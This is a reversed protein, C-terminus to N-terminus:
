PLRRRSWGPPRSCAWARRSRRTKSRPPAPSRRRWSVAGRACPTTAPLAGAVQPVHPFGARETLFRGIELDPNIGEEPRRFLKFFLRDGFIVSTNSQEAQMPRPELALPAGGTVAKFA